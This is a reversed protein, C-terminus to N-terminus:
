RNLYYIMYTLYGAFSIWLLYPIQLGAALKSVRKFFAVMVISVALLVLLWWFAFGFNRLNFFIISWAFNIALDFCYLYLASKADKPHKDRNLYVLAAGIGLLTYLVTWVIPFVIAPPTLPPVEIDDFINNSNRTLFAALGGVAWASLLAIGYVKTKKSM